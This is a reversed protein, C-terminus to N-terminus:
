FKAEKEGDAISKKCYAIAAQIAAQLEEETSSDAVATHSFVPRKVLRGSNRPSSSISAPASFLYSAGGRLDCSPSSQVELQINEEEGREGKKRRFYPLSTAMMLRVYKKVTRCTLEFPSKKKQQQQKHQQNGEMTARRGRPSVLVSATNKCYIRNGCRSGSRSREDATCSSTCLDDNAPFREGVPITFTFSDSYDASLRPSPLPSFHSLLHLPLLHGHFFIEDAPAMDVAEASLVLTNSDAGDDTDSGGDLSTEAQGSYPMGGRDMAESARPLKEQWNVEEATSTQLLHQSNM